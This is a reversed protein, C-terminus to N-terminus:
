KNIIETALEFMKKAFNLQKTNLMLWNSERDTKYDTYKSLNVYYLYPKLDSLLKYTKDFEEKGEGKIGIMFNVAVKKNASHLLQILGRAINVPYSKNLKLLTKLSGTELGIEVVKILNAEDLIIDLNKIAEQVTTQIIFGKFLPNVKKIHEIFFPLRKANSSQGFTKDDIYIYRFILQKFSNIEDIIMNDPINVVEKPISKCFTCHNSCGVSLQLRAVTRLYAIDFISYDSQTTPEVSIPLQKLEELKELYMIKDNDILREKNYVGAIINTLKDLDLYEILENFLEKADETLSFFLYEVKSKNIEEAFSFIDTIIVFKSDKHFKIYPYVRAVWLPLEMFHCNNFFKARNLKTCLEWHYNNVYNPNNSNILVSSFQCFTIM